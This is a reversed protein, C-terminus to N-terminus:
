RVEDATDPSFAAKPYRSAPAEWEDDFPRIARKSSSGETTLRIYEEVSNSMQAVLNKDTQPGLIRAVLGSGALDAPLEPTDGAEYYFTAPKNQVRYTADGQGRLMALAAANGALKVGGGGGSGAAAFGDGTINRVMRLAEEAQPDGAARFALGA